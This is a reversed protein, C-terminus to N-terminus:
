AKRHSLKDTLYWLHTTDTDLHTLIERSKRIKDQVFEETKGVIGVDTLISKLSAIDTDTQFDNNFFSRIRGETEPDAMELAKLLVYTKKQETLDSGLSKGMVDATSTLELLDDQVQFAEGLLFGFQGLEEQVDSSAGSISGGLICCMSILRATKKGIMMLYDDITVDTRQEFEKDFAQGECIDIVGDTFIDLIHRIDANEINLLVKYALALLGDGSLIATSVDWRTHVTPRGRRQDDGDMIDDHVLTFNHLIEIAAGTDLAEHADGGYADAVLMVLIPRIRKGGSELVYQMPTYLSEPADYTGAIETLRENVQHRLKEVLDESRMTRKENMLDNM